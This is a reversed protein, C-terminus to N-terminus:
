NGFASDRNCLLCNCMPWQLREIFTIKAIKECMLNESFRFQGNFM